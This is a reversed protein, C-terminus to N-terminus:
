AGLLLLYKIIFSCGSLCLTVGILMIINRIKKNM